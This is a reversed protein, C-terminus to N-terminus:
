DLGGLTSLGVDVIDEDEIDMVEVVELVKCDDIVGLTKVVRVAVASDVLMVKVVPVSAGAGVMTLSLASFPTSSEPGSVVEIIPPTTPPHAMRRTRATMSKMQMRRRAWRLGRESFAPWARLFSPEPKELM